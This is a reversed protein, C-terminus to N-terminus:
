HSAFICFLPKKQPFFNSYFIKKWGNLNVKTDEAVHFVEKSFNTCSSTLSNEYQNIRQFDNM